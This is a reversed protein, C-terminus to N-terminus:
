VNVESLTRPTWHLDFEVGNQILEAISIYGLEAEHVVALGFAQNQIGPDTDKETIFWDYGGYFYHLHVVAQDGLNEQEYRRPMSVIINATKVLLNCFYLGEEGRCNQVMVTLQSRNVFNILFDVADKVQKGHPNLM